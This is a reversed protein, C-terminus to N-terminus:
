RRPAVAAAVLADVFPQLAARRAAARAKGRVWTVSGLKERRMIADLEAARERDSSTLLMRAVLVGVATGVRIVYEPRALRPMADLQLAELLPQLPVAGAAQVYGLVEDRLAKPDLESSGLRQGDLRFWKVRADKPDIDEAVLGADRLTPLHLASLTSKTKRTADVLHGLTKPGRELQHLIELQVPNDVSHVRGRGKWIEFKQLPRHRAGTAM